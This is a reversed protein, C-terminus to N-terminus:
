QYRYLSKFTYYQHQVSDKQTKKSDTMFPNIRSLVKYM